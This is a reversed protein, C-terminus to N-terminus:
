AKKEDTFTELIQRAQERKEASVRSWLAVISNESPGSSILDGPTCHLAEAIMELQRQNYPQKGNEIRSLSATTIGIADALWEQSRQRHKRWERIFTPGLPEQEMRRIITVGDSQRWLEGRLNESTMLNRGM